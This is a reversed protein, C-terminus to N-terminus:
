SYIATVWCDASGITKTALTSSNSWSMGTAFAYGYVGLDFSFNSKAPIFLVLKPVATDAPVSATNHIQLYQDSASNNIGSIGYLPGASAKIVGSAAVATTAYTTKTGGVVPVPNTSSVAASGVQLGTNISGDTNVLMIETGDTIKQQMTM